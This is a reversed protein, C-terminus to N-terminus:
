SLPKEWSSVMCVNDLWGPSKLGVLVTKDIPCPTLIALEVTIRGEIEQIGTGM